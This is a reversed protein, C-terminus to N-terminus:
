RSVTWVGRAEDLPDPRYLVFFDGQQDGVDFELRGEVTQGAEMSGPLTGMTIPGTVQGDPLQLNWSFPTPEQPDDDRNEISVLLVLYGGPPYGGEITEAFKASKVTATFGSIRASEGIDLVQDEDRADVDSPDVTSPTSLADGVEDIKKTAARGLFTVAVFVVIVAIVALGFFIALAILCGKNSKAPAVMPPPPAVPPAAVAGPASQPPYWNGDSAKWWGPGPPVDTV